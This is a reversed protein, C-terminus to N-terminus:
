DGSNDQEADTSTDVKALLWATLKSRKRLVLIGALFWILSIAMESVVLGFIHYRYVSPPICVFTEFARLLQPLLSLIPTLMLAGILVVCAAVFERQNM